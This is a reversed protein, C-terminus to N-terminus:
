QGFDAPSSPPALIVITPSPKLLLAEATFTSTDRVGHRTSVEERCCITHMKVGFLHERARGNM